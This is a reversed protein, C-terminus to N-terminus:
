GERKIKQYESDAKGLGQKQLLTKLKKAQEDNLRKRAKAQSVKNLFRKDPTKQKGAKRTRDLAKRCESCTSSDGWHFKFCEPCLRLKHSNFLVMLFAECFAADLVTAAKCRFGLKGNRIDPYIDSRRWAGQVWPLVLFGRKHETIKARNVEENAAFAVRPIDAYRKIHKQTSLFLSLLASALHLSEKRNFAPFMEELRQWYEQGGEELPYKKLTEVVPGLLQVMFHGSKVKMWKDSNFIEESGSATFYIYTDDGM